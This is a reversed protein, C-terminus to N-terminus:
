FQAQLIFREIKERAEDLSVVTYITTGFDPSVEYHDKGVRAIQYGRYDIYDVVCRVVKMDDPIDIMVGNVMSIM